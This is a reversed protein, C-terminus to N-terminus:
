APRGELPLLHHGMWWEGEMRTLLARGGHVAHLVEERRSHILSLYGSRHHLCRREALAARLHPEVRGQVGAAGHAHADSFLDDLIAGVYREEGAIQQVQGIGGPQHYYVYWGRVEGGIRVLRARLEGRPSIEAMAALQWELYPEDYAPRLRLGRTVDPLHRALEGATAPASEAETAGGPRLARRLVGATVTDLGALLPRGRGPAGLREARARYGSVFQWPRFVRVWGVCALHFTEGGVGEWIRRVVESATDTLTLEQPGNMYERMLFAGPARSRADPETVLQGSVGLRVEVGDFVLRRVSSGLFGAIRGGEEVYVLSPVEADAWPHDFFFEGFYAALGAPATRSGSRAVHEYLSAVQELDDRELPRIAGAV